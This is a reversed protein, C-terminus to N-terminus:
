IVRLLSLTLGPSLRREVKQAIAVANGRRPDYAFSLAANEVSFRASGRLVGPTSELTRRLMARTAEDQPLSGQIAFFAVENGRAREHTILAHDYCSAIKDDICVGCAFADISVSALLALVLRKM